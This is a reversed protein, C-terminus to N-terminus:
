KDRRWCKELSLGRDILVARMDKRGILLRRADVFSERCQSVSRM